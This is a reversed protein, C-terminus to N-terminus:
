NNSKFNKHKYTFGIFEKRLEEDEPKLVPVESKAKKNDGKGFLGKIAIGNKPKLKNLLGNKGDKAEVKTNDESTKCSEVKKNDM